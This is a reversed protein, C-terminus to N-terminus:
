VTSSATFPYRSLSPMASTTRLFLPIIFRKKLNPDYLVELSRCVTKTPLLMGGFPSRFEIVGFPSWELPDTRTQPPLPRRPIQGGLWRAVWGGLWRALWRAM